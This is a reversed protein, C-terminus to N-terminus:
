EPEFDDEYCESGDSIGGWQATNQAADGATGGSASLPKEWGSGFSVLTSQSPQPECLLVSSGGAPLAADVAADAGGESGVHTGGGGEGSSSGGGGDSGSTYSHQHCQLRAVIDDVSELEPGGAATCAAPVPPQSALPVGPVGCDAAPTVGAHMVPQAAGEAGRSREQQRANQGSRNGAALQRHILQRNTSVVHRLTDAAPPAVPSPAPPLVHRAAEGSAATAASGGAPTNAATSSSRRGATIRPSAPLSGAQGVKGKQQVCAPQAKQPPGAAAAVQQAAQPNSTPGEVRGAAAAAPAGAAESGAGSDAADLAGQLSRMLLGRWDSNSLNLRLLLREFSPDSAEAGSGQQTSHLSSSSGAGRGPSTHQPPELQQAQQAQQSPPPQQGVSPQGLAGCRPCCSSVERLCQGVAAAEQGSRM